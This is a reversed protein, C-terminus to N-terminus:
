SLTSRELADSHPTKPDVCTRATAIVASRGHVICCRTEACDKSEESCVFLLLSAVVDTKGRTVAEPTCLCDMLVHHSKYVLVHSKTGREVTLLM